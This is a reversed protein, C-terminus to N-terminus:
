LAGLFERWGREYVDRSLMFAGNHDGRLEVFRKPEPAAEFLQRGHSFPIIEDDRSHIVLVPSRVQALAARSDYRIRSLLRVPLWPYLQQGLDPASTFSSELVLGAPATRAALWAAVGGGLSQGHLVIREPAIGRQQTLHRWVAEADHYTGQETPKGSSRGYGRYDFLLLNVGLTHFLEVFELRHGINGANGHFHIVTLRADPAPIFWADLAEGDQTTITVPEFALGIAAPTATVERGPIGPLFVMQNQFLYMSGAIGLYVAALVGSVTGMQQM